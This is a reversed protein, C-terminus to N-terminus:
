RLIEIRDDYGESRLTGLRDLSAKKLFPHTLDVFDYYDFHKKGRFSRCGRGIFQVTDRGTNEITSADGGGRGGTGNVVAALAPLDTGEGIISSIAVVCGIEGRFLRKLTRERDSREVEGFIFETCIGNDSLLTQLLKGHNIRNVLVITPKNKESLSKVVEFIKQNRFVNQVIAQKYVTQWPVKKKKKGTSPVKTPLKPETVPVFFLRPPVSVEREILESQSITYIIDGTMALLNMGEFELSPTASLGFRFPAPCAAFNDYWSDSELRHVEDGFVVKRSKLFKDFKRHACTQVMAVTVDQLDVQNDGIIGIKKGLREQFRKQTQYMLHRRDTFFVTPLDISKILAAAIETKGANTAADIIGRGYLICADVADAQYSYKGKNLFIKGEKKDLLEYSVNEIPTFTRQDELQYQWSKESLYDTVRRLFGTPFYHQGTQRHKKVYRYKGDWHGKKWAPAFWHGPVSYSTVPDLFGKPYKGQIWTWVNQAFLQM